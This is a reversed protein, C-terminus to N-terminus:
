RANMNMAKKKIKSRGSHVIINVHGFKGRMFGKEVLMSNSLANDEGKLIREEFIITGDVEDYNM